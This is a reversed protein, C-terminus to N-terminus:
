LFLKFDSACEQIPVSVKTSLHHSESNEPLPRSQEKSFQLGNREGGQRTPSNEDKLSM